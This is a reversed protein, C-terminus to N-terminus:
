SSRMSSTPKLSMKISTSPAFDWDPSGLPAHRPDSDVHRVAEARGRSSRWGLESGPELGPFIQQHMRPNVPGQTSKARPKSKSATDSLRTRGVGKCALSVLHLLPLTDPDELVGDSVGDLADCASSRPKTHARGFNEQGLHHAPDTLTVEGPWMDGFMLHIWYNAPAGAIIGDYDRPYRQAEM